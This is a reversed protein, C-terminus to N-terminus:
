DKIYQLDQKAGRSSTISLLIIDYETIFTNKYKEISIYIVMYKRVRVGINYKHKAYMRSPIGARCEYAATADM